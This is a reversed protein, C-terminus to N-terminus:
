QNLVHITIDVIGSNDIVMPVGFQFSTWDTMPPIAPVDIDFQGSDSDQYHMTGGQFDLPLSATFTVVGAAADYSWKGQSIRGDAETINM